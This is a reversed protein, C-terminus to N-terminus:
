SWESNIFLSPLFFSVEIRIFAIQGDLNRDSREKVLDYYMKGSIYVVKKVKSPDVISPDM